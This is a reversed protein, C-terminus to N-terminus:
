PNRSRPYLSKPLSIMCLDRAKTATRRSLLWQELIYEYGSDAVRRCLYKSHMGDARVCLLCLRPSKSSSSVGTQTSWRTPFLGASSSPNATYMIEMVRLLSHSWDLIRSVQVRAPLQASGVLGHPLAHASLLGGLYRIVTEFFPAYREQLHM